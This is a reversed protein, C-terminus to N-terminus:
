QQRRRRLERRAGAPLKATGGPYGSDLCFELSAGLDTDLNGWRRFRGNLKVRWTRYVIRGSRVGAGVGAGRGSDAQKLIPFEPTLQETPM